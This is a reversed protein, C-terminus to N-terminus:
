SIMHGSARGDCDVSLFSVCRAIYPPVHAQEGLVIAPDLPDHGFYIRQQAIPIGLTKQIQEMIEAVTGTGAVM